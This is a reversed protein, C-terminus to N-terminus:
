RSQASVESLGPNIARGCELRTPDNMLENECERDRPRALIIVCIPAASYGNLSFKIFEALVHIRTFIATPDELFGHIEEDAM